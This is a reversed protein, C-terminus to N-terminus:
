HAPLLLKAHKSIVTTRKMMEMHGLVGGYYAWYEEMLDATKKYGEELKPNVAQLFKDMDQKNAKQVDSDYVSDNNDVLNLM